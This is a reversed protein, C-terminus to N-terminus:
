VQTIYARVGCSVFVALFVPLGSRAVGILLFCEALIDDFDEPIGSGLLGSGLLEYLFSPYLNLRLQMRSDWPTYTETLLRQRNHIGWRNICVM